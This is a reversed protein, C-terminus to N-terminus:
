GHAAELIAEAGIQGRSFRTEPGPLALSAARPAVAKQGRHDPHAMSELEKYIDGATPTRRRRITQFRRM